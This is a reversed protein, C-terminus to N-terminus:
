PYVWHTEHDELEGSRYCEVFENLLAALRDATEVDIKTSAAAFKDGDEFDWRIRLHDQYGSLYLEAEERPYNGIEIPYDWIGLDLTGTLPEQNENGGDGEADVAPAAPLASLAAAAGLFKRRSTELM